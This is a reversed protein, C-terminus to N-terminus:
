QLTVIENVCVFTTICLTCIWFYDGFNNAYKDWQSVLRDIEDKFFSTPQQQIWAQVWDCVENDTTYRHGRIAQKLPGFVHFDYSSLDLSYTLHQLTEWGFQQLTTKVANATLPRVSEHLHIVGNPLMGPRKSKFSWKLNQLTSQYRQDNITTGRELIELLLPGKHYFFFSIM